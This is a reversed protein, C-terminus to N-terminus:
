GSHSVQQAPKVLRRSPTHPQVIESTDAGDVIAQAVESLRQRSRRSHSRLLLFAQGTTISGREALIGKAQEIIVRTNLATQLQQNVVESRALIRDQLIGVTAVDALAQGVAVDFPSLRGVETHFLNLAGVRQERLRLPLACVSRYHYAAAREAFAPWHHNSASLDDIIVPKGTRYAELCPGVGSEIQVGELMKVQENSAASVHMAGHADGVLVGAAAIPLLAMASSILQEEASGKVEAFQVDDAMFVSSRSRDM